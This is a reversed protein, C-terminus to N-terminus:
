DPHAPAIGEAPGTSKHHGIMGESQISSTRPSPCGRATFGGAHYKEPQEFVLRNYRPGLALAHLRELCRIWKPEALFFLPGFRRYVASICDIPDRWFRLYWEWSCGGRSNSPLCSRIGRQVPEQGSGAPVYRRWDLVPRRFEAIGFSAQFIRPRTKRQSLPLPRQHNDPM